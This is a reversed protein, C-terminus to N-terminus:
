VNLKLSHLLNGTLGSKQEMKIDLFVARIGELDQPEHCGNYRTSDQLIKQPNSFNITKQAPRMKPAKNNMLIPKPTARPM